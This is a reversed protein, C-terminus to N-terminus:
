EGVFSGDPARIFDEKVISRSIRKSRDWVDVMVRLNQRQRDDWFIQTELGLTRGDATEMTGHEQQSELALLDNYSLRRLRETEAALWAAAEQEYRHTV